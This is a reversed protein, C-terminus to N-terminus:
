VDPHGDEGGEGHVSGDAAGGERDVVRLLKKQRVESKYNKESCTVSISSM